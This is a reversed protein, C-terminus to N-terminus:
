CSKQAGLWAISASIISQVTASVANNRECAREILIAIPLIFVMCCDDLVASYLKCGGMATETTEALRLHDFM